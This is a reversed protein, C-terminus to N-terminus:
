RASQLISILHLIRVITSNEERLGRKLESIFQETVEKLKETPVDFLEELRTIQNLLDKPLDAM